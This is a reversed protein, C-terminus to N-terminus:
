CMVGRIVWVTWTCQQNCVNTCHQSSCCRLQSILAGLRAAARKGQQVCEDADQWLRNALVHPHQHWTHTQACMSCTAHQNAACIHVGVGEFM